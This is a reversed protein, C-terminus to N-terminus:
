TTKLKRPAAQSADEARDILFFAALLGIAAGFMVYFSPAISGTAEILWTVFFQAFGGFVMVALNYAIGLATSRTFQFSNRLRDVASWLVSLACCLTASVAVISPLITLSGISCRTCLPSM